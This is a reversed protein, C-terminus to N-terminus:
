FVLSLSTKWAIWHTHINSFPVGEAMGSPRKLWSLAPLSSLTWVPSHGDVNNPWVLMPHVIIFHTWTLYHCGSYFGHSKTSHSHHNKFSHTRDINHRGTQWKWATSDGKVCVCVCVCGHPNVSQCAHETGDMSKELSKVHSWQHCNDSSFFRFICLRCIAIDNRRTFEGMM